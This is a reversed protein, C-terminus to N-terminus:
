AASIKVRSSESMMLGGAGPVLHYAPLRSEFALVPTGTRARIGIKLPAFLLSAGGHCRMNGAVCVRFGQTEAVAFSSEPDDQDGLALAADGRQEDTVIARLQQAVQLVSQGLGFQDEVLLAQLLGDGLRDRQDICRMDSGIQREIQPARRQLDGDPIRQLSN